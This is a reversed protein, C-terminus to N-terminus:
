ADASDGAVWCRSEGHLGRSLDKEGEGPKVDCGVVKLV